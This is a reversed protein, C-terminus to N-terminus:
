FGFNHSQTHFRFGPGGGGFPGANGFPAGGQFQAFIDALDPGNMGFGNSSDMQGDEDEGM